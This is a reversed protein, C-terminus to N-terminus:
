DTGGSSYWTTVQINIFPADNRYYRKVINLLTQSYKSYFFPLVISIYKQLSQAIDEMSRDQIRMM